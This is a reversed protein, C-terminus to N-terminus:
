KKCREVDAFSFWVPSSNVIMSFEENAEFLIEDEEDEAYEMVFDAFLERDKLEFVLHDRNGSTKRMDRLKLALFKDYTESFIVRNLDDLLSFPQVLLSASKTTDNLQVFYITGSYILLISEKLSRNIYVKVLESYFSKEEADKLEVLKASRDNLGSEKARDEHHKKLIANVKAYHVHKPDALGVLDYVNQQRKM